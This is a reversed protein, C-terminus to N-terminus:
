VTRDPSYSVVDRRAWSRTAIFIGLAIVFLPLFSIFPWYPLYLEPIRTVAYGTLLNEVAIRWTSGFGAAVLGIGIIVIGFVALVPQTTNQPASKEAFQRKKKSWGAARAGWALFGGWYYVYDIFVPDAYFFLNWWYVSFAYAWVFYIGSRHLLKWARPKVFKRGIKFSTFTMAILFLYGIVGEIADRLVYVESIYYDSHLTVLWVIFFLQWAMAASFSLGIFKRNRMLWHSFPGPFLVLISSAAFAIYLLPVACRVSLQIMSSVGTAASLDAGIMAVVMAISIPGAILWFLRWENLMRNKLIM